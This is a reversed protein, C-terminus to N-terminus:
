RRAARATAEIRALADDLDHTPATGDLVQRARTSIIKAWAERVDPAAVDNVRDLLERALEDFQEAPLELADELVKKTRANMGYIM